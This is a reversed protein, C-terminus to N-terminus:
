VLFTVRRLADRSRPIAVDAGAIRALQGARLMRDHARVRLRLALREIQTAAEARIDRPQREGLALRQEVLQPRAGTLGFVHPRLFPLHAVEDDPVVAAHHVLTLREGPLPAPAHM